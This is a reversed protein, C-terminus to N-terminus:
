RFRDILRQLPSAPAEGSAQPAEPAAPKPRAAPAPRPPKAAAPASPQGIESSFRALDGAALDPAARAMADLLPDLWEADAKAFDGLVHNTVVSKDGPHGVGIRVRVFDPGIHGAISRIGNHGAHGGGTKVRVKGPALDLEDHLVIVDKPAIKHFAMAAQVSDGSLNMFTEPKLLIAKTGGVRGEAIQGQFKGRWIAFGHGAAIADLALFGVNHRNRAYKAGPNGLGVILKM